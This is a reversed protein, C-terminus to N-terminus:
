RSIRWLKFTFLVLMLAIAIIAVSGVTFVIREGETWEPYHRGIEALYGLVFMFLIGLGKVVLAYFEERKM